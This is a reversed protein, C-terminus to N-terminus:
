RAGQKKRQSDTLRNTAKIDLATYRKLYVLQSNTLKECAFNWHLSVWDGAKVSSFPQIANDYGVEGKGPTGLALHGDKLALLNRRVVLSKEKVQEVRGWSIRCSDMLEM